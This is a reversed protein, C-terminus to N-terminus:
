PTGLDTLGCHSLTSNFLNTIPLDLGSGGIKESSNLIMNFDGFILWSDHYISSYLNNITDCTLHKSNHYPSGYVGTAFWQNTSNCATIYTDIHMKNSKLIEVTVNNNWILWSRNSSSITCNVMFFNSLPGCTLSSKAKKDFDSLKTEM